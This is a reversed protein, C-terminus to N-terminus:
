SGSTVAKRKRRGTLVDAGAPDDASLIIAAPSQVAERLEGLKRATEGYGTSRLLQEVRDVATKLRTVACKQNRIESDLLAVLLSDVLPTM